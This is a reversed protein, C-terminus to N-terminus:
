LYALRFFWESPLQHSPPLRVRGYYDSRPFAAYMPFPRPLTLSPQLFVARVCPSPFFTDVCSVWIVLFASNSWFTRKVENACRSVGSNRLSVQPVILRCPAPPTSPSLM